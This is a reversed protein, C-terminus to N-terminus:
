RPRCLELVDNGSQMLWSEIEDGLQRAAAELGVVGSRADAGAAQVVRFRQRALLNDAPMALLTGRVELVVQSSQPRAFDQIFEDLDVRLRCGASQLQTTAPHGLLRQGLKLELLQAPPAAWRSTAYTGRQTRDAYSLRYYMAPSDLWSPAYVEIQRLILATGPAVQPQDSSLDHATPTVRAVTGGFCASLLLVWPIFVFARM